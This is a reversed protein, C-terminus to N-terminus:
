TAPQVEGHQGVLEDFLKRYHIMAQRMDETSAEGRARKLAVEHAERYGQVTQSHQVSLDELRRDFPGEPYGRASMVENLLTDARTTAEKPNDVFQAQVHDWEAGFRRWDQPSLPKLDYHEVRKEREHLTKEAKASGGLEDVTRLYESGFQGRLHRTRQNRLYLWAAFLGLLVIVILVIIGVETNSM